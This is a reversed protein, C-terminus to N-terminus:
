FLYWSTNHGFASSNSFMRAYMVSAPWVVVLMHENTIARKIAIVSFSGDYRVSKSGSICSSEGGGDVPPLLADAPVVKQLRWRSTSARPSWSSGRKSTSHNSATLLTTIFLLKMIARFPKEIAPLPAFHPLPTYGVADRKLWLQAGFASHAVPNHVSSPAAKLESMTLAVLRILFPFCIKM